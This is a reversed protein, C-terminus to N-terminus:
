AAANHATHCAAAAPHPVGGGAPWGHASGADCCCHESFIVKGLQQHCGEPHGSTVTTHCLQCLWYLKKASTCTLACRPSISCPRVDRSVDAAPGSLGRRQLQTLLGIIGGMAYARASPDSQWFGLFPEQLLLLLNHLDVKCLEPRVTALSGRLHAARRVPTSMYLATM